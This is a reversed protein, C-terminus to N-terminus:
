PLIEVVYWIRRLWFNMSICSMYVSVASVLFHTALELCLLTVIGLFVFISAATTTWHLYWAIVQYFSYYQNGTVIMVIGTSAIAVATIGM